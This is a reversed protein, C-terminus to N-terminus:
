CISFGFINEKQNRQQDSSPIFRSVIRLHHCCITGVFAYIYPFLMRVRARIDWARCLRTSGGCPNCGSFSYGHMCRHLCSFIVQFLPSSSRSGFNALRNAQGGSHSGGGTPAEKQPFSTNLVRPLRLRLCLRHSTIFGIALSSNSLQRVLAFILRGVELISLCM